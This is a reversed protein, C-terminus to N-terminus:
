EKVLRRVRVVAHRSTRLLAHAAVVAGLYHEDNTQIFVKYDMREQSQASWRNQCRDSYSIVPILPM